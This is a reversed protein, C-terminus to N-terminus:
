KMWGVAGVYIAIVVFGIAMGVGSESLGPRDGYELKTAVQCSAGAAGFCLACILIHMFPSLTLTRKPKEEKHESSTRYPSSHLDRNSMAKVKKFPPYFIRDPLGHDKLGYEPAGM